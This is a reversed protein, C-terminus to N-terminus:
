IDDAMTLIEPEGDTICITNEYHACLQGDVTVVTWDNDLVRIAAGGMNVMPEVAIVMGKVLRPGHGARGYNPVEPSEHLDAGVGHGVYERVISYGHREM